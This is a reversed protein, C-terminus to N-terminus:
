SKRLATEKLAQTLNAIEFGLSRDRDMFRVHARVAQYVEQSKAGQLKVERIDLAQTLCVLQMALIKYVGEVMDLCSMSASMGLSVKDQNHSESSRSFIGSPISRQIIESTLAGVTQHVGKLGHHM